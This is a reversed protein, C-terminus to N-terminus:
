SFSMLPPDADRNVTEIALPQYAPNFAGLIVHCHHKASAGLIQEPAFKERCHARVLGLGCSRKASGYKVIVSVM